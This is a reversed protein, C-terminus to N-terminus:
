LNKLAKYRKWFKLHTLSTYVMLKGFFRFRLLYHSIRYLVAALALFVLMEILWEFLKNDMWYFSRQFFLFILPAVILYLGIVGAVFGHGTEIAKQPCHGMCHMCSECRFTWYPRSDIKIIAKVPCNKICIDCHDCASSAYFTKALFYRGVFYYLLSVPSVLVDQVIELLAKYSRKGSIVKCAFESVKKKNREHLYQVTRTNLGPHLSIWNSPLDVPQMAHISYGKIKLLLAALLFAVGTLGPTIWKGILMGARTNMLVVDNRGKPFRAIFNVVIPPYNFGHIPSVFVLLCNDPPPSVSLRDKVAINLTQFELGSHIAVEGFWRAVNASNGTGSFYYIIVKSYTNM